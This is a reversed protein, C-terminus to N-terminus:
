KLNDLLKYMKKVVDASKGDYNNIIIAYTYEKGDSAKHYGAYAKVGNISGSKMKMDNHEPLAYYFSKFWPRTRAYQLAKVLANTTVRNQPSLGSGDCINLASKEIDHDSWFEKLLEVGKETSGFGSKEFAMTKILAEGYLNISKKLFWYNISDLPPSVQKYLEMFTFLSDPLTLLPPHSDFGYFMAIKEAKMNENLQQIFVNQPDPISASVAFTDEGVPITGEILPPDSGYNLFVISNDGSGKGASKVNVRLGNFLGAPRTQVAAVNDGPKKGSKLVIDYQNELWNLSQASAGYYNGIDEWIWGGPVTNNGYASDFISYQASVPTIKNKRISTIINELITGAKTSDFRSSGFTPDGSPKIVFYSRSPNTNFYKYGIETKYRYHPGLLDFAACSTFIKQTSAPALGIQANHEYVVTDTKSDYVAFGVIAHVLQTDAEMQQVAQTLKDRVTQAFSDTVGFVLFFIM